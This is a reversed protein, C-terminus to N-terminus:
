RGFRDLCSVMLLSPLREGNLLMAIAQKLAEIKKQVKNSEAARFQPPCSTLGLTTGLGRAVRTAHMLSRGYEHRALPLLSRAFADVRLSSTACKTSSVLPRKIFCSRLCAFRSGAGRGPQVM